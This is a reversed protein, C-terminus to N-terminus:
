SCGTFHAADEQSRSFSGQDTPCPLGKARSVNEGVRLALEIARVWEQQSFLTRHRQPGNRDRRIPARLVEETSRESITPVPTPLWRSVLLWPFLRLFNRATQADLHVPSEDSVKHDERFPSKAASQNM